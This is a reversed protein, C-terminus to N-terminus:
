PTSLSNDARLTPYKRKFIASSLAKKDGQKAKERIYIEHVTSRNLPKGTKKNKYQKALNGFSYKVPDLDHLAVIKDNRKQDPKNAV